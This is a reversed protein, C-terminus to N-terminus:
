RGKRKVVPKTNNETDRGQLESIRNTVEHYRDDLKMRRYEPLFDNESENIINTLEEQLSELEQIRNMEDKCKQIAESKEEDTLEYDLYNWNGDNDVYFPADSDIFWEEEKGDRCGYTVILGFCNENYNEGDVGKAEEVYKQPLNNCILWYDMGGTNNVYIDEFDVFKMCEETRSRIKETIKNTIFDKYLKKAEELQEGTLDEGGNWEWEGAGTITYEHLGQEEASPTIELTKLLLVTCQWTNGALQAALGNYCRPADPSDFLAIRIFRVEELPEGYADAHLLQLVQAPKLEDQKSVLDKIVNGDKRYYDTDLEGETYSTIHFTLQPLAKSAYFFPTTDHPDYNRFYSMETGAENFVVVPNSVTEIEYSTYDRRYGGEPRKQYSRILESAQALLLASEEKSLANEQISDVDFNANRSVESVIGKDVSYMYVKRGDSKPAPFPRLKKIYSGAYQEKIAGDKNLAEHPRGFDVVGEKKILELEEKWQEPCCADLNLNGSTESTMTLVGRQILADRLNFPQENENYATAEYKTVVSM